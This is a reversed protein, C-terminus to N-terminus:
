ALCLAYWKGNDGLICMANGMIGSFAYVVKCYGWLLTYWKGNDGHIHTDNGMIGSFARVM